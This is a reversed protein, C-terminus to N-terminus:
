AIPPRTPPALSEALLRVAPAGALAVAVGDPTLTASTLVAAPSHRHGCQCAEAHIGAGSNAYSAMASVGPSALEPHNGAEVLCCDALALAFSLALLAGALRRAHRFLRSTLM